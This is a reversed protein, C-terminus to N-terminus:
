GNRRLQLEYLGIQEGTYIPVQRIVKYESLAVTVDIGTTPDFELSKAPLLVKVDGAKVVDGDIYREDYMEFPTVKKTYDTPTGASKDGTTPDYADGSVVTFTADIGLRQVIVQVKPLLRLDLTTYESSATRATKGTRRLQLEYLGITTFSYIPQRSVVKWMLGDIIVRMGAEPTFTLGCAPLYIRTDEIQVVDGDILRVNYPEPPTVKRTIMDASKTPVDGTSPEYYSESEVLFIVNKGMRNIASFIRSGLGSCPVGDTVPVAFASYPVDIEFPWPSPGIWYDTNQPSSLLTM